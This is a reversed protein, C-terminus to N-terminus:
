CRNLGQFSSTSVTLLEPMSTAFGAINGVAKSKLNLGEALKRLYKVLIYKSILVILISYFIFKFLEIFM